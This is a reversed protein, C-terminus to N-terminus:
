EEKVRSLRMVLKEGDSEHTVVVNDEDIIEDHVVGKTTTGDPAVEVFTGRYTQGECKTIEYHTCAGDASYISHKWAKAGPDWGALHYNEEWKISKGPGAVAKGGAVVKWDCYGVGNKGDVRLEWRGPFFKLIKPSFDQGTAETSALLLCSIVVLLFRRCM